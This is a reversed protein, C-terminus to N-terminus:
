NLFLGVWGCIDDSIFFSLVILGLEKSLKAKSCTYGWWGMNSVGPLDDAPKLLCYSWEGERDIQSSQDYSHYDLKQLTTKAVDVALCTLM